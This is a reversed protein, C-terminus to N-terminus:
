AKVTKLEVVILDAIYLDLRHEGVPKGRYCVEVSRQRDFPIGRAQLELVLANEYIAELFGPGLARHVEIAAGIIRSTVEEHELSM